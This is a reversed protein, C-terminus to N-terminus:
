ELQRIVPLHLWMIAHTATTQMNQMAFYCGAPQKKNRIVVLLQVILIM